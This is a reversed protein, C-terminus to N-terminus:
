GSQFARPSLAKCSCYCKAPVTEQLKPLTLKIKAIQMLNKGSLDFVSIIDPQAPIIEANNRYKMLSRANM